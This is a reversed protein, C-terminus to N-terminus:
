RGAPIHQWVREGDAEGDTLTLGARAAVTASAHHDQHIHATIVAAGQSALWAVLARAAETAYGNGQWPVGIVWAIV